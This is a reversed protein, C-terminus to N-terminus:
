RIRMIFAIVYYPPRNEHPDNTGTSIRGGSSGSNESVVRGTADDPSNEGGAKWDSRTPVFKQYTHAHRPMEFMTLLHEKEGGMFGDGGYVIPDYKQESRWGPYSYSADWIEPSVLNNKNAGYGVVFRGRLDPTKWGNEVRGDCIAFGAPPNTGSWMIIGGIPVVGYGSTLDVTTASLTQTQVNSATIKSSSANIDKTTLTGKVDVLTNFTAKGDVSLTNKLTTAGTTIFSKSVTLDNDIVFDSISTNSLKVLNSNRDVSLLPNLAYWVGAKNYYFVGENPDYVLLGNAATSKIANRKGSDMEPILLGKSGNGNIHLASSTHPNLENVGVQAKICISYGCLLLFLFIRKM